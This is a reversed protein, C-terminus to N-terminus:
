FKRMASIDKNYSSYVSGKRPKVKATPNWGVRLTLDEEDDKCDDSTSDSESDSSEKKEEFPKFMKDVFHIARGVQYDFTSNKVLPSKMTSSRPAKLHEPAKALAESAGGDRLGMRKETVTTMFDLYDEYYMVKVSKEEQERHIECARSLRDSYDVMEKDVGKSNFLIELARENEWWFPLGCLDCVACRISVDFDVFAGSSKIKQEDVPPKLYSIILKKLFKEKRRLLEDEGKEEDECLLQWRWDSEMTLTLELTKIMELLDKIRSSNRVLEVTLEERAYKSGGAKLREKEIRKAEKRRREAEIQRTLDSQQKMVKGKQYYNEMWWNIDTGREGEVAYADRSSLHGEIRKGDKTRAWDVFLQKIREFVKPRLPYLDWRDRLETFVKNFM